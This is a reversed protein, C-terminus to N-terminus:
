IKTSQILVKCDKRNIWGRESSIYFDDDQKDYFTATFEAGVRNNYWLLDDSCKTVKVKIPFQLESVDIEIESPPTTEPEEVEAIKETAVFKSNIVRYFNIEWFARDGYSNQGNCSITYSIDCQNYTNGLATNIREWEKKSDCEIATMTGRLTEIQVMEQLEEVPNKSPLFSLGYEAGFRFIQAQLSYEFKRTGVELITEPSPKSKEIEELLRQMAAISYKQANLADSYRLAGKPIRTGSPYTPFLENAIKDIIEQYNQM